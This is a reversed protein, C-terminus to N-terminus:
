NGGSHSPPHYKTVSCRSSAVSSSFSLCVFPFLDVLLHSFSSCCWRWVRKQQDEDALGGSETSESDFLPSHNCGWNGKREANRAAEAVEEGAISFGRPPTPADDDRHTTPPVSAAAQFKEVGNLPAVHSQEEQM